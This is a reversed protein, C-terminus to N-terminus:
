QRAGLRKAMDAVDFWSQNASTPLVLSGINLNNAAELAIYNAGGASGMAENRAAKVKADAQAKALNGKAVQQNRYFDAAAKTEAGYKNAEAAKNAAEAAAKAVIVKKQTETQIKIENVHANEKNALAESKSLEANQDALKKEKIKEDYKPDFAVDQVQVDVVDIFRPGLASRLAELATRSQEYRRRADYFEETHLVGFLARLRDAALNKLVAVHNDGPGTDQVLRHADGPHVRYLLNLDVLVRDGDSSQVSLADGGLPSRLLPNQTLEVRRITAPVRTWTHVFPIALHIGPGFDEQVIGRRGVNLACVGIEDPRIRIFSFFVLAGLLVVAFLKVLPRM